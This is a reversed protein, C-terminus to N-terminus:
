SVPTIPTRWPRSIIRQLQDWDNPSVVYAEVGQVRQLASIWVLQDPQPRGKASKLELFVLRGYRPHVLTLDPYGKEGAMNTTWGGGREAPLQSRLPHMRLWGHDKALRMVRDRFERESGPKAKRRDAV